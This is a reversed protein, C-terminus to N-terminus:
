SLYVWRCLTENDGCCCVESEFAIELGGGGSTSSLKGATAAGVTVM